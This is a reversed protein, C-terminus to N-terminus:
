LRGLTRSVEGRVAQAIVDAFDLQIVDTANASAGVEQKSGQKHQELEVKESASISELLADISEFDTEDTTVAEDDQQQIYSGACPLMQAKITAPVRYHKSLVLIDQQREVKALAELLASNMDINKEAVLQVAYSCVTQIHACSLGELRANLEESLEIYGAWRQVLKARTEKDPLNFHLVDDVRGVRDVLSEPLSELNNIAFIVLVGKSRRQLSDLEAKVSEIVNDDQMWREVDDFFLVAPANERALDFAYSVGSFASMRMVDRANVHVFTIDKLVNMIVRAAYTKGNGSPGGFIMVSTPM